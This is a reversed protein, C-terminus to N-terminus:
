KMFLAQCARDAFCIALQFFPCDEDVAVPEPFRQDLQILSLRVLQKQFQAAIVSFYVYNDHLLLWPVSKTGHTREPFEPALQGRCMIRATAVLSPTM